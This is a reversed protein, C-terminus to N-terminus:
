RKEGAYLGREAFEQGPLQPVSCNTGYYSALESDIVREFSINDAACTKEKKFKEARACWMGFASYARDVPNRILFILKANPFLHHM